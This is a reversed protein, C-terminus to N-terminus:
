VHARGIKTDINNSIIKGQKIRKSFNNNLKDLINRTKKAESTMNWFWYGPVFPTKVQNFNTTQLHFNILKVTDNGIKLDSSMAQNNTSSFSIRKTNIIPFKSLVVLAFGPQSGYLISKHQLNKFKNTISDATFGSTTDFEQFCLIDVKMKEAFESILQSTLDISGYKLGKINYTCITIKTKEKLGIENNNRSIKFVSGIFGINILISIIPVFIWASFNFAWYIILFFCAILTLPLITSCNELIPFQDGYFPNIASLICLFLIFVTLVEMFFRFTRLIVNSM